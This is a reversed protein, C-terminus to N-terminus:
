FYETIALEGQKHKSLLNICFVDGYVRNLESFHRLFSARNNEHTSYFEVDAYIGSQKWFAPVSGRIQVQSFLYGGTVVIQETECFNATYGKSEIGRSNYRTGGLRWGRRTILFYEVRRGQLFVKFHKVSGQMLGIFWGKDQLDLLQQGMNLNWHYSGRTAFGKAFAQRSLSLDYEYSFYYGEKLLFNKLYVAYNDIQTKMEGKAEDRCLVLSVEKVEFIDKGQITCVKECLDVLFLYTESM